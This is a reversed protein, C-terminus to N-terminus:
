QRAGSLIQEALRHARPGVQRVWKSNLMEHAATEWAGRKLADLFARFGLLGTGAKASGIGMNFAMNILAERRVEDLGVISWQIEASVEASVETIDNDLMFDSERLSIGKDRLNRGVGITPIGKLRNLQERLNNPPAM